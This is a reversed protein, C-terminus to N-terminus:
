HGELLQDLSALEAELMADVDSQSLEDLRALEAEADDGPAPEAAKETDELHLVDRLVYGAMGAITPYDFLITTPLTVGLALSIANHLEVAMLSDLGLEGLPQRPDLQRSADLALVKVASSQIYEIMMELRERAPADQLRKILQLDVASREAPQTSMSQRAIEALLPPESGVPLPKLLKSWEIPLVAAQVPSRELLKGLLRFGADTPIPTIGQAAWRRQDAESRTAAMGAEAWPGWNISTAALGRARREHALADLFANAAAYNGQGPSGLLSAMSSYMVFFDLDLGRTQQDLHWGGAVKPAFVKEFRSWEQRALVGDDLVGAAHIIGKLPPLTEAAQKLVNAVETAQSLDAQAILLKVGQQRLAELAEQAEESPAKRGVLVLHKAGQEALWKATLQGLAGLGGTVLYSADSRIKVAGQAQRENRLGCDAIWLKKQTVVVKGIHRAQAMYRFASEAEEIPFDRHCLPRLAGSEFLPLLEKLM